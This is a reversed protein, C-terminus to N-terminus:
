IRPVIIRVESISMALETKDASMLVDISLVAHTNRQFTAMSNGVMTRIDWNMVALSSSEAWVVGIHKSVASFMQEVRFHRGGLSTM